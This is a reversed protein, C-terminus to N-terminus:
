PQATPASQAGDPAPQPTYGAERMVALPGPNQNLDLAADRGKATLARWLRSRRLPADLESGRATDKSTAVGQASPFLRNVGRLINATTGPFLGHLRVLINASAPFIREAEGRKAARVILRAAKEASTITPL